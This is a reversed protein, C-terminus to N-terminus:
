RPDADAMRVTVGKPLIVYSFHEPLKAPTLVLVVEQRSDSGFFRRQTRIERVEIGEIACAWDAVSPGQYVLHDLLGDSLLNM